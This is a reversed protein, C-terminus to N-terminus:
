LRELYECAATAAITGDATATTLQRVEKSRCDGAVFLGPTKTACNEGSAAYGQEDFDAYQSILACEPQRGFAVFVASTSITKQDGTNVNKVTIGNLVNEASLSAPSYPTLLTINETAQALEVSAQEARFSDRRHVITVHNCLKALFLADTFATNGGGVVVVDKGRFFAGDCLACYSIGKGILAEENDLGMSRPRAGGAFIVAKADKQGDDTQATFTGDPNRILSEVSAFAIEAGADMAQSCFADGLEMGSIKPLGPYNDVQHSQTIQGGLTERECVVVSRGARAAYIAATLGAPGGGIILIDTMM